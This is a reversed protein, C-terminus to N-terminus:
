ENSDNSDNPLLPSSIFYHKSINRPNNFKIPDAYRNIVPSNPYMNESNPYMKNIAKKSLAYIPKKKTQRLGLPPTIEYIGKSPGPSAPPTISSYVIQGLEKQKSPQKAVTFFGAREYQPNKEMKVGYQTNSPQKALTFFEAPEHPNVQSKVGSNVIEYGHSNVRPSVEEYGNSNLRTSTSARRVDELNHFSPRGLERMKKELHKIEEQKNKKCKRETWKCKTKKIKNIQKQLNKIEFQKKTRNKIGVKRIFGKPTPSVKEATIKKRTRAGGARQKRSLKKNLKRSRKNKNRISRKSIRKRSLRPKRSYKRISRTRPM